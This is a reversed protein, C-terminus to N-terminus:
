TFAVYRQHDEWKKFLIEPFPLKGELQQLVEDKPFDSLVAFWDILESTSVKKSTKEKEMKNRLEQFRAVAKEILDPSSQPFHAKVIAVLHEEQPFEIYHFLCRRLFAEPLDKEDNSTIFILPPHTSEITKKTEEITFKQEDLERL